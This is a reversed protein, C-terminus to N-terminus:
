AGSSIPAHHAIKKPQTVLLHRPQPREKWLAMAAWPDIIPPDQAPYDEDITIAQTPGIRRWLTTWRLGEVVSPLAPAVDTNEGPHHLSKSGFGGVPLCHHNVGGIELRM